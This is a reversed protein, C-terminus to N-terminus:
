AVAKEDLVRAAREEAAQRVFEGVNPRTTRQEKRAAHRVRKLLSVSFRIGVHSQIEGAFSGAKRTPRQASMKEGRNHFTM